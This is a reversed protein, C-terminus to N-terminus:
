EGHHGNGNGDASSNILNGMSSGLTALARDMDSVDIVTSVKGLSAISEAVREGDDHGAAYVLSACRNKPLIPANGQTVGELLLLANNVDKLDALRATQFLADPTFGNTGVVGGAGIGYSFEVHREVGLYSTKVKYHDHFNPHKKLRSRSVLENASAHLLRAETIAYRESKGDDIFEVFLQEAVNAMEHSQVPVPIFGGEVLVYKDVSTLRLADLFEPSSRQVKIKGKGAPLADKALMQRWYAVWNKYTQHNRKKIFVPSHETAGTNPNDGFFRSAVRGDSWLIVGINRPEMRRPNPIYKAIIFRPATSM